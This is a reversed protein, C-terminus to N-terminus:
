NKKFIKLKVKSLMNMGMADGTTSSFRLYLYRSAICCKISQLKAFRSTSDFATKLILFNEKNEIWERSEAAKMASQFRIVPGRTMGDAIVKTYVGQCTSLANCGRNTSAVLTGETTAMPIQYYKGDILLPGAIGLPIPIYGIVNECNHGIVKKYNYNEFPIKALSNETIKTQIIQRRIEVGRVPNTFYSELKYLPIHKSKVLDIIEDDLFHDLIQIEKDKLKKICEKRSEINLAILNEDSLLDIQLSKNLLQTHKPENIQDTQTSITTKTASKSNNFFNFTFDDIKFIKKWFYKTIIFSTLTLLLACEIFIILNTTQTSSFHSVSISDSNFMKSKLHIIILCLTMLIKVYVLVPNKSTENFIKLDTKHSM